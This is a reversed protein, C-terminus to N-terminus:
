LKILLWGDGFPVAAYSTSLRVNLLRAPRDAGPVVSGSPRFAGVRTPGSGARRRRMAYVPKVATSRMARTANRVSERATVNTLRAPGSRYSELPVLAPDPVDGHVASATTTGPQFTLVGLAETGRVQIVRPAGAMTLAGATLVLSMVAAALRSTGLDCTVTGRLLAHVRNALESEHGWAGLALRLRSRHHLRQEALRTLCSAYVIPRSTRAIVGADCALERQVNLRHNLWLLVPNLPLVVLAVQQALNMWDDHRRLHEREHLTIQELDFATLKPVLWEPLLLRPNRFGLVTPSDVDESTCLVMRRGESLLPQLGGAGKELPIARKWVARLHRYALLLQIARVMAMLAWVAAIGAAAIPLLQVSPGDTPSSLAVHSLHVWPLVALLVFAVRSVAYHARYGAKTGVRLMASLALATAMGQWLGTFFLETLLASLARVLTQDLHMM